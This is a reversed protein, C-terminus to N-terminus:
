IPTNQKIEFVNEPSPNSAKKGISLYINETNVAKPTWHKIIYIIKSLPKVLSLGILNMFFNKGTIPNANEVAVEFAVIGKDILVKYLFIPTELLIEEKVM